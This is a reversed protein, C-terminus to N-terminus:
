RSGSRASATAPAATAAMAKRKASTLPAQAWCVTLRSLTGPIAAQLLGAIRYAGFVYSKAPQAGGRAPDGAVREPPLVFRDFRTGQLRDPPLRGHARPRPQRRPRPIGQACAGRHRRAFVRAARAQLGCVARVLRRERLRGGGLRRQRRGLASWGGAPAPLRAPWVSRLYNTRIVSEIKEPTLDLFGGGGPIGANSVLLHVAPHRRAIRTAARSKPSNRM